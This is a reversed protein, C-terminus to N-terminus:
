ATSSGISNLNAGLLFRLVAPGCRFFVMAMLLDLAIILADHALGEVAVRYLYNGIELEVHHRYHLFSMLGIPLDTARYFALTLFYITLIRSALTAGQEKSM